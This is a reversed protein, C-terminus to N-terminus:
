ELPLLSMQLEQGLAGRKRLSGPSSTSSTYWMCLQQLWLGVMVVGFSTLPYVSLTHLTLFRAVM